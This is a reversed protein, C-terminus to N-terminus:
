VKFIDVVAGTITELFTFPERVRKNIKNIINNTENILQQQEKLLEIISHENKLHENIKKLFDEIKINDLTNKYITVRHWGNHRDRSEFCIGQLNLNDNELNTIINKFIEDTIFISYSRNIYPKNIQDKATYIAYDKEKILNSCCNELENILYEKIIELNEQYEDAYKLLKFELEECKDIVDQKLEISEGNFKMEEILPMYRDCSSTKILKFDDWKKPNGNKIGDLLNSFHVSIDRYKNRLIQRDSQNKGSKLGLVFTISSVVLSTSLSTIINKVTDNM